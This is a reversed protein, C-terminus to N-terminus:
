FAERYPDFSKPKGEAEVTSINPTQNSIKPISYDSVTHQSATASKLKEEIINQPPLPVIDELLKSFKQTEETKFVEKESKIELGSTELSDHSRSPEENKILKAYPPLPIDEENRIIKENERIAKLIEENVDNVLNSMDEKPITIKSTLENEYNEPHIDNKIVKITTEELAGMQSIPLKYKRAIEYLKEKWNSHAIAEQVNQPMNSFQPDLVIPKTENLIEKEESKQYIEKLKEIIGDSILAYIEKTLNNLKDEYINLRNKLENLYDDPHTLGLLLLSTETQFIELQEANLNNTRGIELIKDNTKPNAFISVVEKPLYELQKKIIKETETEM